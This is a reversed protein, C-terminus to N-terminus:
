FWTLRGLMQFYIMMNAIILSFLGVVSYFLGMPALLMLVVASAAILLGTTLYFCLWLRTKNFLSRLVPRSLVQFVTNAEEMSLLIIPFFLFSSTGITLWSDGATMRGVFSLLVGPVASLVAANIIYVAELFWDIFAMDPWNHIEDAGNATDELIRLAVVSTWCLWMGTLISGAALLFTGFIAGGLSTIAALAGMMIFCVVIGSLVMAVYRSFCGRYFKRKV